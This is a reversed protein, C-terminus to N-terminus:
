CTPKGNKYSKDYEVHYLNKEIRKVKEILQKVTQELEIIRAELKQQNAEQIIYNFANTDRGGYKGMSIISRTGHFRRIVAMFQSM